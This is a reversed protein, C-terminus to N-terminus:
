LKFAVGHLARVRTAEYNLVRPPNYQEVFVQGDRQTQYTKVVGSGDVFEVVVDKGKGAPYGRRVVLYEGPFIRPEMTSGPHRVAFWDGPGLELGLPLQLYEIVQGDGLAITEDGGAAAYGFVPLSRGQDPGERPPPADDRAFFARVARAQDVTLPTRSKLKRYFFSSNMGMATALQYGAGRGRAKLAEAVEDWRSIDAADAMASLHSM